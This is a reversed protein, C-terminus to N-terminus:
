HVSVLLPSMELNQKKSLRHLVICVWIGFGVVAAYLAPFFWIVVLTVNLYLDPEVFNVEFALALICIMLFGNISTIAIHIGRRTGTYGPPSQCELILGLVLGATYFGSVGAIVGWVPFLLEITSQVVGGMITTVLNLLISAILHISLRM